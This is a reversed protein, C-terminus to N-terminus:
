PSRLPPADAASLRGLAAVDSEGWGHNFAALLRDRLLSVLPAPLGVADAAHLAYRTDKLGHVLAFGAPEYSGGAIRAGYAEYRPSGFLRGALFEHFLRVDIGHAGVLAYSEALAEVMALLVFNGALKLVSAHVPDEGAEIVEQAFSAFLPRCTALAQPNGAAIVWLKGQAAAEPRGFVPAAVFRQGREHHAAALRASFQASITGMCAHIAGPHLTALLGDPGFALPDLAADDALMTIVVDAAAVAARASPAVRAGPVADAPRPTRNWVTLECGAAALRRAMALGMNGLGLLAIQM